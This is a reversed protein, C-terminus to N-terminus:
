IAVRKTIKCDAGIKWYDLQEKGNASPQAPGNEKLEFSYTYESSFTGLQAKLKADFSNGQFISVDDQKYMFSIVPKGELTQDLKITFTGNMKLGELKLNDNINFREDFTRKFSTHPIQTHALQLIGDLEELAHDTISPYKGKLDMKFQRLAEINNQGESRIHWPYVGSGLSSDRSEDKIYMTQVKERSDTESIALTRAWTAETEKVDFKFSDLVKKVKSKNSVQHSLMNPIKDLDKLQNFFVIEPNANSFEFANKLVEIEQHKTLLPLGDSTRLNNVQLIVNKRFNEKDEKLKDKFRKWKEIPLGEGSVNLDLEKKGGRAWIALSLEKRRKYIDLNPTENAVTLFNATIKKCDKSFKNLDKLHNLCIYARSNKEYFKPAKWLRLYAYYAGFSLFSLLGNVVKHKNWLHNFSNETGLKRYANRDEIRDFQAPFITVCDPKNNVSM